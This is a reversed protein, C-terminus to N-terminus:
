LEFTQTGVPTTVNGELGRKLNRLAEMLEEEYEKAEMPTDLTYVDDGKLLKDLTLNWVNSLQALEAETLGKAGRNDPQRKLLLANKWRLKKIVGLEEPSFQVSAVVQYRTRGFFFGSKQRHSISVRM